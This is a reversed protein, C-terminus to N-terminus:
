FFRDDTELVRVVDFSKGEERVGQRSIEGATDVREALPREGVAHGFDESM